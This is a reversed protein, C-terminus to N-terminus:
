DSMWDALIKAIRPHIFYGVSSHPNSRGYRVAQNYIKYDTVTSVIRERMMRGLDDALTKDHCTYDDEASVNHWAIINTPYRDLGSEHAGALRRRVNRDGLPAGLTLWLDIKQDGYRDAYQPDHSLEWLVDWVVAAGSGHSVIAIKEDKDLLDTLRERVRERASEAYDSRGDLYEAFDRAVRRCLWMWLGIGGILPVLLDAMAEKLATKGPLRDYGRIGFGKRAPIKELDSLANRRDGVDLDEDYHGGAGLLLANSLDGYYALEVNLADFRAVQDPFDREIGARLAETSISRLTEEAPKLDRGHVLLLSRRM